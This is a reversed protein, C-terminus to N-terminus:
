CHRKPKVSLLPTYHQGALRLVYEAVATEFGADQFDIELWIDNLHAQAGFEYEKNAFKYLETTLTALKIQAVRQGQVHARQILKCDPDRHITSHPNPYNIYVHLM